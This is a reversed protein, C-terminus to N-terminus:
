LMFIALLSGGKEFIPHEKRRSRKVKKGRSVRLNKIHDPKAGVPSAELDRAMCCSHSGAEHSADVDDVGRGVEQTLRVINM